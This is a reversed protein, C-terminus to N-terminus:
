DPKPLCCVDDCAFSGPPATPCDSAEGESLADHGDPCSCSCFGGAARCEDGLKDPDLPVCCALSCAGCEACPQPCDNLASRYVTDFGKGCGCDCHGGAARCAQGLAVAPVVSADPAREPSADPEKPCANGACVADAEGCSGKGDCDICCTQGASCVIDGCPIGAAADGPFRVPTSADARAECRCILGPAGCSGQGACDICCVQDTACRTNACPLGESAPQTQECGAFALLLLLAAAVLARGYWVAPDLHFPVTM